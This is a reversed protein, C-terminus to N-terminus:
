GDKRQHHYPFAHLSDDVRDPNCVILSDKDCDKTQDDISRRDKDQPVTMIMSVCVIAVFMMMVVVM